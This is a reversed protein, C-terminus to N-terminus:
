HKTKLQAFADLARQRSKKLDILPYPYTTGMEIRAAKLVDAPAEWPNFLWKHPLAGLEPVWKKLYVGDPDFKKGQTVPNFIRFFPAADAGCGAVWQWSASNNALDADVLTDWFWREGLRWDLGLNKTLFSGVIMRVRNHMYGTKWLERMGADVMPIGTKGQQWKRLNENNRQWPFLDFKPQINKYPLKPNHFLLHHSFERWALETKFHETNLDPGSISEQFQIAHWVQHPSIEGFHLHPSLGSTSELAPFDRGDKYSKLHLSIFNEIQQRAGNEGPRWNPSKTLDWSKQPALALSEIPLITLSHQAFQIRDTKLKMPMRPPASGLCGNRYYRTFVRYPTGDPKQVEWPEWLLSGNFSRVEIGQQQLDKKIIADRATRWPEYGRNWTILEAGSEKLLQQLVQQAPGTRVVLNGSLSVNLAKLSRHLWWRSAGGPKQEKPNEDDLIFVPIVEGAEVAASLAPNDQLRLDQRFWHLVKLPM